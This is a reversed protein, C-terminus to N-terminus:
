SIKCTSSSSDSQDNPKILESILDKPLFPKYEPIITNMIEMVAEKEKSVFKESMSTEIMSKIKKTAVFQVENKELEPDANKELHLQKENQETQPKLKLLLKEKM